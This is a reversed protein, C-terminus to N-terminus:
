WWNQFMPEVWPGLWSHWIVQCYSGRTETRYPTLSWGKCQCAADNQSVASGTIYLIACFLTSCVFLVCSEQGYSQWVNVLKWFEKAMLRLLLLAIFHNDLMGGIRLRCDSVFIEKLLLIWSLKNYNIINQCIKTVIFILIYYYYYYYYYISSHGQGHHTTTKVRSSNKLNHKM